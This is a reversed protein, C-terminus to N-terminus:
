IGTLELSTLNNMIGTDTNLELLKTCTDTVKVFDFSYFTGKM